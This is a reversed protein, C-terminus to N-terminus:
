TSYKNQITAQLLPSHIQRVVCEDIQLCDMGHEIPNFGFWHISRRM